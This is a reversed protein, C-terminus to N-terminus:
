YRGESNDTEVTETSINSIEELAEKAKAISEEKQKNAEAIAAKAQEIIKVTDTNSTIQQLLDLIAEPANKNKSTSLAIAKIISQENSLTQQLLPVLDSTLFDTIEKTTTERALAIKAEAEKKWAEANVAKWKKSKLIGFGGVIISIAALLYYGAQLLMIPNSLLKGYDYTGDQISAIIGSIGQDYVTKVFITYEKSEDYEPIIYDSALYEDNVKIGDIYATSADDYIVYGVPLDVVIKATTVEEVTTVELSIGKTIVSDSTYQITSVPTAAFLTTALLLKIM